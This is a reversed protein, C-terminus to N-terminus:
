HLLRTSARQRTRPASVTSANTHPGKPLCRKWKSSSPRMQRLRQQLYDVFVEDLDRPYLYYIKTSLFRHLLNTLCILFNDKVLYRMKLCTILTRAGWDINRQYHLICIKQKKRTNAQDKMTQLPGGKWPRGSPMKRM